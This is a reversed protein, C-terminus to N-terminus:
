SQKNATSQKGEQEQHRHARFIIAGASRWRAWANCALQIVPQSQSAPVVFLLGLGGLQDALAAPHGHLFHRQAGVEPDVPRWHPSCAAAPRRGQSAHASNVEHASPLAIEASQLLRELSIGDASSSPVESGLRLYM